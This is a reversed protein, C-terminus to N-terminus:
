AADDKKESLDPGGAFNRKKQRESAKPFPGEERIMNLIQELRRAHEMLIDAATDQKLSL